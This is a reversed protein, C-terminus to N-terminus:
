VFIASGSQYTVLDSSLMQIWEQKTATHSGFVSAKNDDLWQCLEELSQFVPSKPSGESTNEWLQYGEGSPPDIPMWEDALKEIEESQYFYGKGGCYECHGYVGMHEARAKVCIWQNTADHGMSTKNWINVEEATPYEPRACIVKEGKEYKIWEGLEEDFRGGFKSVAQLRGAKMLADVEIDTIHNSWALDNYRRGASVSVYRSKDFSYWDDSIKKTEPNLGHGGCAKCEQSSYPNLYGKWVQGLYWKFDLPVRKLERGM